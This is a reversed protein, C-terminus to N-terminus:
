PSLRAAAACCTAASVLGACTSASSCRQPPPSPARPLSRAAQPAQMRSKVSLGAVGGSNLLRAACYAPLSTRGRRSDCGPDNV